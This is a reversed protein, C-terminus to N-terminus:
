EELILAEYPELSAGSVVSGDRQTSSLLVEGSVGGPLRVSAGTFNLAVVVSRGEHERRYLFLDRRPDGIPEYAGLQLAPTAKRLWLLRRYFNFLSQPDRQASAVCLRDVEPDIALWPQGTTFGGGPGPEWLMPTRSADRGQYLPWALHGLPDQVQSRPWWRNTMGLEEGYYLFPTGRLTMLMAACLKARAVACARYGYIGWGALRGIHRPLDHNSLVYAPWGDAPCKEEFRDVVRRYSDARFRAVAPFEMNFALHLEDSKTYTAAPSDQWPFSVVEGIMMRDQFEDTLRRFEQLVAHTEPLDRTHTTDQFKAMYWGAFSRPNDTLNENELLYNILDLRFGDVGKELWFRIDALVAKKVDPNRWNLDPQFDFFAHYFYQGSREDYRWAPGGPAAQWNNPPGGAKDDSWLFWDRKPNDRSSSSEVFWPHEDSTHNPVFDNIVRIGRQHAQDLLRDFDAMNGHEPHVKRYDTVDYGFDRNPSEYFPTLWVADVGLSDDGGNNLYDLHATIGPLDGIGDGNSDAFSRVYIQYVVGTKWWPTTQTAPKESM